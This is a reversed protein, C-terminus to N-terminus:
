SVHTRVKIIDWERNTKSVMLSDNYVDSVPIPFIPSLLIAYYVPNAGISVAECEELNIIVRPDIMLLDGAIRTTLIVQLNNSPIDLINKFVSILVTHSLLFKM